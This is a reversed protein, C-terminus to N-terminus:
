AGPQGSASTSSSSLHTYAERLIHKQVKGSASRPITDVFVVHKPRKFSALRDACHRLIDHDRLSGDGAVVLALGVEGWEAHALGMVAVDAVGPHAAIAAEVEAPYVNEGGSIYMDKLRDALYVVGDQVRAMDGSRFWGDTFAAETLDPRNWYGETVSPGRLWIEGVGGNTVDAGDFDVVRTELLPAAFGISGPHRAILQRDLPMHYATGTESMGYGNVLAIGDDLFREILVPPLPAGGLFIAKLGQLAAPNWNPSNRLTSAMQPVGCYHSVGIQADAMTAITREAVFRDSIVLRAGMVMATRALAVLGITHFFPLDCLVVSEPTVEGVFAFNLASFFLNRANLLVGKPVGTTGSTYLIVCTRDASSYRPTVPELGSAKDLFGGKGTVVLSEVEFSTGTEAFEADYLLLTPECDALILSIERTSLRWNLPVFIAGIRQCAFCVAFQATSNRGLYAIRAPSDQGTGASAIVDDLAAACRGILTDFESFTLSQGTALEMVAPRDPGSNARFRVPDEAVMGAFASTERLGASGYYSM